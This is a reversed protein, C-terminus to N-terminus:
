NRLLDVAGSLNTFYRRRSLTNKPIAAASTAPSKEGDKGITFTTIFKGEGFNFYRQAADVFTPDSSVATVQPHNYPSRRKWRLMWAIYSLTRNLGSGRTLNCVYPIDPFLKGLTDRPSEYDEATGPHVFVIKGRKQLLRLMERFQPRSNKEWRMVDRANILCLSQPIATIL